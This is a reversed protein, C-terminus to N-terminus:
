GDTLKTQGNLINKFTGNLVGFFDPGVNKFFNATQGLVGFYMRRVFVFLVVVAVVTSQLKVPQANGM